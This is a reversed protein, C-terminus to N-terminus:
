IEDEGGIDIDLGADDDGGADLQDGDLSDDLEDADLDADLDGTDNFNVGAERPSVNSSSDNKTNLGQQEEKWLKENDSIEELTLGLYKTMLFRKSMFPVDSISNFNSILSSDLELQRYQSFNQPEQFRLEFQSTDISHGKYKLYRKFEDDFVEIIKNQHRSCTKNFRFEQIFATGVRGDNYASSGDDPGTPLYSSPVGLARMMKNNFYKLDDIEGMNEGGPLTTVDSGRGDSTSAFYYDELMSNKVFIGAEIAFTHHNHWREQYDVTITGVDRNEVVEISKIRHNYVTSKEKFDEWNEYGFKDYMRTLKSNTFVDNKVNGTSNEQVPNAITMLEIFKSDQNALKITQLRNSDNEKVIEVLRTLMEQTFNLTQNQARNESLAKRGIEVMRQYEEPNNRIYEARSKGNRSFREQMEPSSKDVNNWWKRLKTKDRLPEKWNPNNQRYEELGKRIKDKVREAEEPTINEWYKRKNCSHYAIHDQHSMWALNRPDNNYRNYDRHHVVTKDLDKLLEDFIMVQHKNMDKFFEAVMRHSFKWKNEEHDYVQTYSRKPDQSLSRERTEFSILPDDPTLDKAEVFGKGLVPIKHDPTCILTEDNDLTIKITEANKRTVGAWTINGPMVKGTVPDTSYVWNEKGQQYEEILQNLELTRGDLLPIHTSLDLCLPNYAADTVSQGGGNRSPIRKQQVEYKVREIYQQAKHPPMTGVDIKFVRREPARHIRYILVSDEILEKQKYIKFIPELISVGFPWAADMGETLSVQVIHEADVPFSQEGTTYAGQNSLSPNSTSTTFNAQGTLPANPFQSDQTGYGGSTKNMMNSAVLQQLNLDMDQIYFVELEKGKSENVVVKEINGPDVWLLKYTEPDRIFFQDGYILTSRFIRFMRKPFENLYSWQRLKSEIVQLESNTPDEKWHISFPIGTREDMQTSFEAITDLAANIEHDMDMQEYQTYRQLRNPPGQYVEPLWNSFKSTSASVSGIGNSQQTLEVKRFHKKWSM